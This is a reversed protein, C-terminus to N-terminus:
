PFQRVRAGYRPCQEQVFALRKQLLDRSAAEEQRAPDDAALAELCHDHHRILAALAIQADNLPAKGDVVCRFTENQRVASGTVTEIGRLAVAHYRIHGQEHDSSQQNSSAATVFMPEGRDDLYVDGSKLDKAPVAKWDYDSM